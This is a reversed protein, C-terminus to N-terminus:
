SDSDQMILEPSLAAFLEAYASNVPPFLVAVKLVFKIITRALPLMLPWYDAYSPSLSGTPSVWIVCVAAAAATTSADGSELALHRVTDIIVTTLLRTFLFPGLVNVGIHVELGQATKTRPGDADSFSQVAANNFLTHLSTELSLFPVASARIASLDALHLPLFVLSGTSNPWIRQIDAIADAVKAKPRAIISFSQKAVQSRTIHFAM